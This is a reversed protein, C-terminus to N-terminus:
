SRRILAGENYEQYYDLKKCPYQSSLLHLKTVCSMSIETISEPIIPAPIAYDTYCSAVPQVVSHNTNLDRYPTYNRKEADDLSAIPGVWGGIWHTSTAREGPTFRCPRSVSWEGGALALTLFIHIKLLERAEYYGCMPHDSKVTRRVETVGSKTIV